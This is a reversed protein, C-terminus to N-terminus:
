TADRPLFGDLADIFRHPEEIQPVHGSDDFVAFRAELLSATHKASELPIPDHRGHAVLAAVRLDRVQATLDYDGLSRWIAERTRASILFQKAGLARRPDKFYPAISLEFARQRFAAPDSRRLSSHELDLQRNRIWPEEMRAALRSVFEMRENATVPAPSVLALSAIRATSNIAYLLALLGGWSYGLL